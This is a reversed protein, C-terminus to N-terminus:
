AVGSSPRTDLPCVGSAFRTEANVPANCFVAACSGGRKSVEFIAWSKLSPVSIEGPGENM